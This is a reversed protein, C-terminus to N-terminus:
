GGGLTQVVDLGSVAGKSGCLCHTQSKRSGTQTGVVEGRRIVEDGM